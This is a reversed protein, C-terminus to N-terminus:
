FLKAQKEEMKIFKYVAERIPKGRSDVYGKVIKMGDSLSEVLGQEVFERMTRDARTYYNDCGWQIVEHKIAIGKERIWHLLEDSKKM